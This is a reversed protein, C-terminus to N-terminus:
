KPREWIGHLDKSAGLYGFASQVEWEVCKPSAHRRMEWIGHLACCWETKRPFGQQEASKRFPLPPEVRGTGPGAGPGEGCEPPRLIISWCPTQPKEQNNTISSAEDSGGLTASSLPNGLSAEFCPWILSSRSVRHAGGQCLLFRPWPGLTSSPAPATTSM